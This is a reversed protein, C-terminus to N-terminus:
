WRSMMRCARGHYEVRDQYPGLLARVYQKILVENSIDLVSLKNNVVKPSIEKLTVIRKAEFFGRM